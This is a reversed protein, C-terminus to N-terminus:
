HLTTSWRKKRFGQLADILADLANATRRQVARKVGQDHLAATLAMLVTLVAGIGCLAFACLDLVNFRAPVMATACTWAVLPVIHTFFAWLHHKLVFTRRALTRETIRVKTVAGVFVFGAALLSLCGALGSGHFFNVTVGLALLVGGTAEFLGLSGYTFAMAVAAGPARKPEEVKVLAGRYAGDGVRRCTLRVGWRGNTESARGVLAFGFTALLVIGLLFAALIM